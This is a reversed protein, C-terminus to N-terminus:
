LLEHDSLVLRAHKEAQAALVDLGIHEVDELPAGVHWKPTLM